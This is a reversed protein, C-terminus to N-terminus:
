TITTNNSLIYSVTKKYHWYWICMAIGISLFYVPMPILTKNHLLSMVLTILTIIFYYFFGFLSAATGRAHTYNKLAASLAQPIIIGSGIMIFIMCCITIGIVISTSFTFFSHLILTTSWLLAGLTLISLGHRIITLYHKTSSAKKSIVSGLITACAIIAFSCGYM